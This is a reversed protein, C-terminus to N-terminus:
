SKAPWFRTDEWNSSITMWGSRPSESYVKGFLQSRKSRQQELDSLDPKSAQVHMSLPARRQFRMARNSHNDSHNWAASSIARRSLSGNLGRWSFSETSHKWAKM